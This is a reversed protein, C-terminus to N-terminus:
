IQCVARYFHLLTVYGENGVVGLVMLSLIFKTHM